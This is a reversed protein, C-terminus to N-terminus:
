SILSCVLCVLLSICSIFFFSFLPFHSSSLLPLHAAYVMTHFALLFCALSVMDTLKVLDASQIFQLIKKRAVSEDDREWFAKRWNVDVVLLPLPSQNTPNPTSWHKVLSQMSTATPGHILGLTGMVVADYENHNNTIELGASIHDYYCDAFDNSPRKDIFGAFERDGSPTRTVLVQRTPYAALQQVYRTNVGIEQLLSILNNGATDLGMAGAFSAQGGLKSFATAVNAPAGGPFPQFQSKALVQDVTWGNCQPGAILDYLAEGISLVHPRKSLSSPSTLAQVHQLLSISSVLILLIGFFPM